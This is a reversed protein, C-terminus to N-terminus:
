GRTMMPVPSAGFTMHSRQKASTPPPQARVPKAREPPGQTRALGEAAAALVDLTAQRNASLGASGPRSAPASRSMARHQGQGQGPRVALVTRRNRARKLAARDVGVVDAGDRTLAAPGIGVGGGMLENRLQMRVHAGMKLAALEAADTEPGAQTSPAAAACGGASSCRVSTASRPRRSAPRM